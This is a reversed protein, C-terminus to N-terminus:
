SEMCLFLEAKWYSSLRHADYAQVRYEITTCCCIRENERSTIVGALPMAEEVTCRDLLVHSIDIRRKICTRQMPGSIVKGTLIYLLKGANVAVKAFTDLIRTPKQGLELGADAGIWRQPRRRHRSSWDVTGRTSRCRLLSNRWQNFHGYLRM